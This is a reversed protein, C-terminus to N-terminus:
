ETVGGKVEVSGYMFTHVQGNPFTFQVDYKYNGAILSSGPLFLDFSKGDESNTITAEITRLANKMQCKGTWGTIVIDDGRPDNMDVTVFFDDGEYMVINVKNPLLQVEDDGAPYVVRAM